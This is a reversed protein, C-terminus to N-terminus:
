MEPKLVTNLTRYLNTRASVYIDAAPRESAGGDLTDGRTYEPARM